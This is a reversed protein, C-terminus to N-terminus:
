ELRDSKASSSAQSQLRAVTSDSRRRTQRGRAIEEVEKRIPDGENFRGLLIESYGIIATLLNNFDHAVGGTLRGYRPWHAGSQSSREEARRHETIDQFIAFVSAANEKAPETLLGETLLIREAGEQKSKVELQYRGGSKFCLEIAARLTKRDPEILTELLQDLTAESCGDPFGLLVALQPSLRAGMDPLAFRAFGLGAIRQAEAMEGDRRHLALEISARADLEDCFSFRAAPWYM